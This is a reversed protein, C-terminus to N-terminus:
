RRKRTQVRLRHLEALASSVQRKTHDDIPEMEPLDDIFDRLESLEDDTLSPLSTDIAPHPPDIGASLKGMRKAGQSVTESDDWASTGM